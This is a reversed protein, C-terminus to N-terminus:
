VQFGSTNPMEKGALNLNVTMNFMLYESILASIWCQIFCILISM